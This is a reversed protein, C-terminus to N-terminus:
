YESKPRESSILNYLHEYYLWLKIALYQTSRFLFTETITLTMPM